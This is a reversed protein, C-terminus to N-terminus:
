KIGLLKNKLSSIQDNSLNDINFGARGIKGELRTKEGSFKDLRKQQRDSFDAGLDKKKDELKKEIRSARELRNEDTQTQDYAQNVTNFFNDMDQGYSSKTPTFFEPNEYANNIPSKKKSAAYGAAGGVATSAPDLIPRKVEATKVKPQPAKKRKAIKGYQKTTNQFAKASKAVKKGGKIANYIKIGANVLGTLNAPSDAKKIGGAAAGAIAAGVAARGLKKFGDKKPKRGKPKKKELHPTVDFGADPIRPGRKGKGMEKMKGTGKKGKGLEKLNAPSDKTGPFNSQKPGKPYKAKIAKDAKAKAKAKETKVAKRVAKKVAPKQGRKEYPIDIPELGKAKRKENAIKKARDYQAKTMDDVKNAPSGKIPDKANLQDAVKKSAEPRSPKKRKQKKFDPRKAVHYVMGHNHLEKKSMEGHSKGSKEDKMKAPSEPAAEIAKKLGEPLNKQKGVLEKEIPSKMKAPSEKGEKKRDHKAQEAKIQDERQSIAEYDIGGQGETSLGMQVAKEPDNRLISIESKLKKVKDADHMKAPSSKAAEKMPESTNGDKDLDLFDPKAQKAPSGKARAKQAATPGSGAGKMKMNAIKGAIKTAAEKSKGQNMLKGVLSDFSNLPSNFNLPSRGFPNRNQKFAM